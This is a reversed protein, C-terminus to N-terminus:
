IIAAHGHKEQIEEFTMFRHKGPRPEEPNHYTWKGKKPAWTWKNAKLQERIEETPKGTFELWLWRGVLQLSKVGPLAAAINAQRKLLQLTREDLDLLAGPLNNPQDQLPAPIATATPQEPPLVEPVIAATTETPTEVAAPTADIIEINAFQAIQNLTINKMTTEEKRYEAKIQNYTEKTAEFVFQVFKRSSDWEDLLKGNVVAAAHDCAVIIYNSDSEAHDAAFKAFQVRTQLKTFRLGMECLAKRINRVTQIEKKVCCAARALIERAEDYTVPLANVMACFICDNKRQHQNTQIFNAAPAKSM